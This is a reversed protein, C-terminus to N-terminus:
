HSILRERKDDNDKFVIGIMMNGACNVSKLVAYLTKAAGLRMREPMYSVVKRVAVNHDWLSAVVVRAKPSLLYSRTCQELLMRNWRFVYNVAPGQVEWEHGFIRGIAGHRPEIVVVAIRAVRLMETFGLTPRPLHHLGDQVLVLDYASDPLDMAEADLLVTMLDPDFRNCRDLAEQSFDSVTVDAFGRKRFFTGEGGVGGCVILISLKQTEPGVSKSVARLALDLRRDRLYRTLQDTTYHFAWRDDGRSYSAEFAAQQDHAPM